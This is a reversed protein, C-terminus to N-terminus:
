FCHYFTSPGGLSQRLVSENHLVTGHADSAVKDTETDLHHLSPFYASYVFSYRHSIYSNGRGLGTYVHAYVVAPIGLTAMVLNTAQITTDSLFLFKFPLAKHKDNDQSWRFRSRSGEPMSPFCDGPLFVSALFLVRPTGVSSEGNHDWSYIHIIDFQSNCVHRLETPYYGPPPIQM